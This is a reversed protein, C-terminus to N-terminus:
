GRVRVAIPVTPRDGARASRRRTMTSTADADHIALALAEVAL